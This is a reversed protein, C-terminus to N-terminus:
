YAKILEIPSNIMKAFNVKGQIVKETYNSTVVEICILTGDDYEVLCDVVGINEITKRKNIMDSNLVKLENETYYRKIAKEGSEEINQVVSKLKENHTYTLENSCSPHLISLRDRVFIKGKRTLKYATAVDGNNRTTFTELLGCSKRTFDKARRQSIKLNGFDKLTAHGYRAVTEFLLLDSKRFRKIQHDRAM